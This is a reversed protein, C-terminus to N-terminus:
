AIRTKNVYANPNAALRAAAQDDLRGNTMDRQAAYNQNYQRKNENFSDKALGYTKMGMFANSLGSAAGLALGGWGPAEKTGIMSDWMSGSAAPTLGAGTFGGTGLKDGMIKSLDFVGMDSPTIGTTNSFMEPMAVPQMYSQLAALFPPTQSVPNDLTFAM